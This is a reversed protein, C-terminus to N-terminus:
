QFVKIDKIIFDVPFISDDVDGGFKGGIAMNIILFFEQDFPWGKHSSDLKDYKTYRIIQKDDIYYTISDEDWDISYKHFDNTANEIKTEFYYQESNRHNYTETHLCLFVVGENRGVHEM